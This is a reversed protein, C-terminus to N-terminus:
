PESINTRPIDLGFCPFEMKPVRPVRQFDFIAAFDWMKISKGRKKGNVRQYVYLFSHFPGGIELPLDIIEIPDNEM